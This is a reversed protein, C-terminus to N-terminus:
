AILLLSRGPASLSRVSTSTISPIRRPFANRWTEGWWRDSRRVTPGDSLLGRGDSRGATRGDSGQSGGTIAVIADRPSPTASSVCASSRCWRWRWVLPWRAARRRSRRTCRVRAASSRPIRCHIAAVAWASSSSARRRSSRTSPRRLGYSTAASIRSWIFVPTPRHAVAPPLRHVPRLIEAAEVDRALQPLGALKREGAPNMGRHVAAPQPRHPLERAEARGFVRVLAVLEQEVVALRAERHREVKRREHAVVGVVRTGLALYIPLACTQVGTVLKDRIGDEAQFFFFFCLILMVLKFLINDESQFFLFSVCFYHTSLPSAKPSYLLM